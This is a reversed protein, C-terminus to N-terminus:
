KMQDFGTAYTKYNNELEINNLLFKSKISNYEYVMEQKKNQITPFNKFFTNKKENFNKVISNYAEISLNENKKASQLEKNSNIYQTLYANM